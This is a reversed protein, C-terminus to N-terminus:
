ENSEAGYNSPHDFEPETIRKTDVASKERTIAAMKERLESTLYKSPSARKNYLRTNSRTARIIVTSTNKCKKQIANEITSTDEPCYVSYALLKSTEGGKL